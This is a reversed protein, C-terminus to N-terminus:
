HKCTMDSTVYSSGSTGVQRFQPKSDKKKAKFLSTFRSLLGPPGLGVPVWGNVNSFDVPIQNQPDISEMLEVQESAPMGIVVEHRSGQHELSRKSSSVPEMHAYSAPADTSGAATPRGFGSSDLPRDAQSIGDVPETTFEEAAVM